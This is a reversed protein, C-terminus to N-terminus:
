LINGREKLPILGLESNYDTKIFRFGFLNWLDEDDLKLNILNYFPVDVVKKLIKGRINNREIENYTTWNRLYNKIEDYLNYNNGVPIAPITIFSDRTITKEGFESKSIEFLYDNLPKKNFEIEYEHEMKEYYKNNLEIFDYENKLEERDLFDKLVKLTSNIQKESYPLFDLSNFIFVDSVGKEGKRNIRGFRQILSDLPAIETYMIDFDIDLSVEVVQTSVLIFPNKDKKVDELKDSKKLKDEYNFRGHILFIQNKNDLKEKLEKYIWKARDVTNLVILIKKGNKFNNIIENTFDSSYDNNDKKILVDNKLLIKIRKKNIYRQKVFEFPLIESANIRNKLENEILTPLTASMVLIKTNHYKNLYELSQLILSLTYPSYSHIEDVILYSNNLSLELLPFHRYNMLSLLVRDITTVVFKNLNYEYYKKKELKGEELLSLFLLHHSFSINDKGFYDEFRKRMSEVTTITPLTYIVKNFNTINIMFATETKGDGTPLRLYGNKFANKQVMKQYNRPEWGNKKFYELINDKLQYPSDFYTRNLDIKGSATWDSYRLVGNFLIYIYRRLETQPKNIFAKYSESLIKYSNEFNIPLNIGIYVPDNYKFNEYLDKHFDSHHTAISLLCISILFEKIKFNSIYKNYYNNCIYKALPLSFLAHPVKSPVNWNLKKDEQFKEDLKGLDHLYTHLVILDKITKEEVGLNKLSNQDIFIRKTIREANEGTKKLHDFLSEDKKGKAFKLSNILDESFISKIEM